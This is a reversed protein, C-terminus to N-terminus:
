KVIEGKLAVGVLMNGVACQFMDQSDYIKHKWNSVINIVKKSGQERADKQFQKIASYLAWRCAQEVGGKGSLTTRKSTTVIFGKGVEKQGFSLEVDQSLVEKAKPDNLANQLSFHEIKTGCGIFALAVLGFLLTKKM